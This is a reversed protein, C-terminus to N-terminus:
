PTTLWAAWPTMSSPSLHRTSCLNWLKVLEQPADGSHQRVLTDLTDLDEPTDLDFRLHDLDLIRYPVGRQHAAQRHAESSREGFCFPLVDPPSTLLANTGGDSAPCILVSPGPRPAGLLERLEAEDLHAIDAPVLLQAAYGRRRSWEAALTAATSLGRPRPERLVAADYRRALDDIVPSATVVLLDHEPLRERFFALTRECLRRALASRRDPALVQGLRSKAEGFDKVPIVILTDLSM